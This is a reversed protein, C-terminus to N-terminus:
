PLARVMYACTTEGYYYSSWWLWTQHADQPYETQSWMRYSQNSSGTAPCWNDYAYSNSPYQPDVPMSSIDGDSVLATGLCVMSTYHGPVDNTPASCIPYAGHNSYYLELAKAIEQMDSQRKADRGKGRAGALSTLVISALIGIIAIVVLLEILTFGAPRRLQM